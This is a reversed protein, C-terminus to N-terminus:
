YTNPVCIGEPAVMCRGSSQSECNYNNLNYCNIMTRGDGLPDGSSGSGINKPLCRITEYFAKFECKDKDCNKIAKNKCLEYDPSRLFYNYRTNNYGLEMYNNFCASNVVANKLKYYVIQRASYDIYNCRETQLRSDFNQRLNVRSINTPIYSFLNFPNSNSILNKEDHTNFLNNYPFSIDNLGNLSFSYNNLNTSLFRSNDESENLYVRGCNTLVVNQEGDFEEMLIQSDNKSPDINTNFCYDLLINSEQDRGLMTDVINSSDGIKDNGVFIKFTTDDYVNNYNNYSMIINLNSRDIVSNCGVFGGFNIVGYPNVSDELAICCIISLNSDEKCSYSAVIGGCYDHSNFIGFNSCGFVLVNSKKVAAYPGIIGGINSQNMNSYNSCNYVLVNGRDYGLYSGCIGGSNMNGNSSTVPLSYDHQILGNVVCNMVILNGGYSGAYKGVIGGSNLKYQSKYVYCNDIINNSAGKGFYSCTIGGEGDELNGLVGTNPNMGSPMDGPIGGPMDGPIGGPMDGPIGGPMDGPIGGPMGGPMSGTMYSPNYIEKYIIHFNKVIVNNYGNSADSGNKVVGNKNTQRELNIVLNNGDLIVDNSNINIKLEQLLEINNVCNIRYYGPQNINLNFNSHESVFTGGRLLRIKSVEIEISFINSAITTPVLSSSSTPIPIPTPISVSTTNDIEEIVIDIPKPKDRADILENLKYFEDINQYYEVKKYLYYFIVILIVILFVKIM